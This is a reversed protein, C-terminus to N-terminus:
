RRNQTTTPVQQREVLHKNLCMALTPSRKTAGSSRLWQLYGTPIDVLKRGKHKGFTMVFSGPTSKAGTGKNPISKITKGNQVLKTPPLSELGDSESKTSEDDSDLDTTVAEDKPVTDFEGADCDRLFGLDVLAEVLEPKAHLMTKSEVLWELYSPDSGAVDGVTLGEHKGFDMVWGAPGKAEDIAATITSQKAALLQSLYEDITDPFFLYQVLVSSLQGVRHCRDEAQQVILPSWDLEVFVVHSAASLTIGTGAAQISGVFVRVAPDTQFRQVAEARSELSDGGTIGVAEDGFAERLTSQVDRHHAFVVVKHSEVAERVLEIAHPIKQKATEHRATALLGRISDNDAQTANEINQHLVELLENLVSNQHGSGKKRQSRLASQASSFLNNDPYNPTKEEEEKVEDQIPEAEMTTCTNDNEEVVKDAVGNEQLRAILEKKNGSVKLHNDKLLEKLQVVTKADLGVKPPAKQSNRQELKLSLKQLAGQVLEMEGAAARNGQDWLPLLQHQKPPLDPLVEDKTRRIMLPNGAHTQKLRRRLEPLNRGGRYQVGWPAIRKHSYHDSFDELSRLEPIRHGDPDIAKLLSYLEPPTNLLPSGTLLWLRDTPLPSQPAGGGLDGLIARTRIADRNKLFHAEDCVVVDWISQKLEDRHKNVIDYNILLVFPQDEEGEQANSNWVDPLGKEATATEIRAPDVLWQSLEFRWNPLVSKPAVVLVRDPQLLNLAGIVSITKGLGMSDALLIGESTALSRISELQFPLYSKGPPVPINIPEPPVYAFSLSLWFLLQLLLVMKSTM